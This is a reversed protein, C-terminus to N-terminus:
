YQSSNLYTNDELELVPQKGLGDVYRIAGQWSGLVAM